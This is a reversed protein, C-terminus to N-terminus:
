FLVLSSNLTIHNNKIEKILNKTGDKILIRKINKNFKYENIEIKRIFLYLHFFKYKSLNNILLVTIRQIGGNKLNEYYVAINIRKIIKIKYIYLFTLIFLLIYLYIDKRFM